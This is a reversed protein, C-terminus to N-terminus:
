RGGQGCFFCSGEPSSSTGSTSPAVIVSAKVASASAVQELQARFVPAQECELDDASEIDAVYTQIAEKELLNLIIEKAM